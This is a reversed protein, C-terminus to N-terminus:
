FWPWTWMPNKFNSQTIKPTKLYMMQLLKPKLLLLLIMWTFLLTTFWPAPNLQPM